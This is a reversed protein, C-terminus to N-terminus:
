NLALFCLCVFNLMFEAVCISYVSPPIFSFYLTFTKVETMWKICWKQMWACLASFSHRQLVVQCTRKMPELILSDLPPPVASGNFGSLDSLLQVRSAMVNLIGARSVNLIQFPSMNYIVHCSESSWTIDAMCLHKHTIVISQTQKGRSLLPEGTEQIKPSLSITQRWMISVSKSSVSSERSWNNILAMVFSQSFLWLHTTLQPTWTYPFRNRNIQFLFLFYLRLTLLHHFSIIITFHFYFHLFAPLWM